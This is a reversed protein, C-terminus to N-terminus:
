RDYIVLGTNTIPTFGLLISDTNIGWLSFGLISNGTHVEQIEKIEIGNLFEGVSWSEQNVCVVHRIKDM